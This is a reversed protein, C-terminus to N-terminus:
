ATLSRTVVSPQHRRPTLADSAACRVIQYSNGWYLVDGNAAVDNTSNGASAEITPQYPRWTECSCGPTLGFAGDTGSWIAYDGCGFATRATRFRLDLLARQAMTCGAASRQWVGSTIRVDSRHILYRRQTPSDGRVTQGTGQRASEGPLEDSFLTRTASDALALGPPRITETLRLNSEVYVLRTTSTVQNLSDRGIFTLIVRLGDVALLSVDTNISSTGSAITQINADFPNRKLTVILSTCGAPDDDQCTAALHVVPRVLDDAAPSTITLTPPADVATVKSAAARPKASVGRPSGFMCALGCAALFVSSTAQVLM